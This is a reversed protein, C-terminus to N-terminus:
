GRLTLTCILFVFGSGRNLASSKSCVCLGTAYPISLVGQIPAGEWNPLSGSPKAPSVVNEHGKRFFIFLSSLSSSRITVGPWFVGEAVAGFDRGWAFFVGEPKQWWGESMVGRDRHCQLQKWNDPECLFAGWGAVRIQHLNRHATGMSDYRFATANGIRWRRQRIEVQGELHMTEQPEGLLDVPRQSKGEQSEDVPRQRIVVRQYYFNYWRKM